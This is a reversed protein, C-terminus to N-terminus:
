LCTRKPSSIGYGGGGGPDVYRATVDVNTFDLYGRLMGHWTGPAPQDWVCTESNGNIYPRCDWVDASANGGHRVYLDADGTGGAM